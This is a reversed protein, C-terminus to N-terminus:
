TSPTPPLKPGRGGFRRRLSFISDALGFLSLAIMAIGQGFLLITYLGTLLFGRGSRGRTRDHIAALGQLGFAMFAGGMVCHLLFGAFGTPPMLAMAVAGVVAALGTGPPM